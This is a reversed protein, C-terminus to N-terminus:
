KANLSTNNWWGQRGATFNVTRGDIRGQYKGGTVLPSKGVVGHADKISPITVTGAPRLDAPGFGQPEVTTVVEDWNPSAALQHALHVEDGQGFSLLTLYDPYGTADLPQYHLVDEKRCTADTAPLITTFTRNGQEDVTVRELEVPLSRRTGDVIEKLPWHGESFLAYYVQEREHEALDKLYLARLEDALGFLTIMQFAHVPVHYLALHYSFITKRGLLLFRHGHRPADAARSTVDARPDTSM